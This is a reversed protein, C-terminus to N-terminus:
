NLNLSHGQALTLGPSTHRRVFPNQGLPEAHVDTHVDLLLAQPVSTRLECKFMGQSLFIIKM